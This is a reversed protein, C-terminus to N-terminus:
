VKANEEDKSDDDIRCMENLASITFLGKPRIGKEWIKM